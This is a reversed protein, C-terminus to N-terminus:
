GFAAHVLDVRELYQVSCGLEVRLQGPQAQQIADTRPRRVPM